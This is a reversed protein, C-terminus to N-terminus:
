LALRGGNSPAATSSLQEARDRLLNRVVDSDNKGVGAAVLTKLLDADTEYLGIIKQKVKQDEAKKPRGGRRVPRAAAPPTGDLTQQQVRHVNAGRAASFGYFTQHREPKGEIVFGPFSVEPGRRVQFTPTM